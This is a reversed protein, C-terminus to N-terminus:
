PLATKIKAKFFTSQGLLMAVSELPDQM